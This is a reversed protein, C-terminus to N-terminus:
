SYFIHSELFYLDCFFYFVRRLLLKRVKWNSLAESEVYPKYIAQSQHWWISWDFHVIMLYNNPCTTLQWMENNCRPQWLRHWNFYIFLWSSCFLGSCSFMWFFVVVEPCNVLFWLTIEVHSLVCFSMKLALM